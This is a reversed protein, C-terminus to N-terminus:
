LFAGGISSFAPACNLAIEDGIVALPQSPSLVLKRHFFPLLHLRAKIHERFSEFASTGEPPPEFIWLPATHTPTEPTEGYLFSADLGSLREM